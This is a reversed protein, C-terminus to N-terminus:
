QSNKGGRRDTRFYPQAPMAVNPLSAADLVADPELLENLYLLYATIAYVQSDTLSGPQDFPMARRIYDFLTTAYPWYNGITRVLTKDAAMAAPNVRSNGALASAAGGQGKEGHCHACRAAYLRKGDSVGGTGPPLGRGDPLVDIDIRSIAAQSAPSGIEYRFAVDGETPTEANAPVQIVLAGLM